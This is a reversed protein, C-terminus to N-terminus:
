RSALSTSGTTAALDDPDDSWRYSASRTTSPAAAKERTQWFTGLSDGWFGQGNLMTLNHYRVGNHGARVAGVRISSLM